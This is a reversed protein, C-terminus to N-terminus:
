ADDILPYIAVTHGHKIFVASHPAIGVGKKEAITRTHKVYVGIKGPESPRVVVAKQISIKKGLWL